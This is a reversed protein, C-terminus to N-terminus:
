PRGTTKQASAEYAPKGGVITMLVRLSQLRDTPTALPDGSLVTLDALRGTTLAGLDAEQFAAYAPAATMARLATMTDVRQAPYWGGAPTGDPGRRTTMSFLTDMPNVSDAAPYDTGAAVVVGSKLLDAVPMVELVRKPGLRDLAWRSYVSVFGPQMSAIVGLASFRPLDAPDVVSAHEIRFRHAGLDPGGYQEYADLARRVARDGIAHANVQYGRTAAAKVLADLEADGMQVLGTQDPADSYPGLLQAGRSGLAGDLFVKFARITLHDNGLGVEPARQLFHAATDGTGTAMVYVRLPLKGSAMLEKYLDIGDLDVGADHVSTLGLRVLHELANELQALRQAHSSKPVMRTVLPVAEDVFMGSPTGDELRMIRGGPPDATRATIGAARLAASNVWISHGDIRTLVVPHDPIARDLDAATPFAGSRWSGQDWGRGEVWAGAATTRARQAVRRVIEDKQLGRLDLIDLQEGFALVHIHADALGPLAVGPLKVRRVTDGVAAAVDAATGVAVIRGDAVALAEATPHRPDLTVIHGVYVVDASIVRTASAAACFVGLVVAAALFSLRRIRM